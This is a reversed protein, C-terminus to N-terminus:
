NAIWGEVLGGMGGTLCWFINEKSGDMEKAV